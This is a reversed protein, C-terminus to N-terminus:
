IQTKEEKNNELLKDFIEALRKTINKRSYRQIAEENGCIIEEQNKWSQYKQVLYKKINERDDYEFNEGTQTESLINTLVGGETSFSLIPKRMRIYEFVKGTYFVKTAGGQAGFLVLIDSQMASKISESHTLYGNYKVINYRDLCDIKQRWKNELTGNFIWQIDDALIQGEEILENIYNLLELPSRDIYIMGNYCLTFKNNRDGKLHIDSFDDEDYGNTIEFIKDEPVGFETVYEEIMSKAVVLVADSKWVLKEELQKQLRQTINIDKRYKELYYKNTMWPDRYDQVWKIGYKNKIYYGLLYISYPNGSTYVMDIENLDLKQEIQKLCENVWIIQNDPILRIHTNQIVKLYENMWEKSQTVGCYLNYIEQQEKWSLVEPLFVKTNIRIVTIDDPVEALLTEDRVLKGDNEGVTLVIPEYGFDRLYKVFKLSRQVGGGGIPPFIYACFLVKKRDTKKLSLKEERIALDYNESFNCNIKEIKEKDFVCNEFLLTDSLQYLKYTDSNNDAAIGAYFFLQIKYIGMERLQKYILPYYVSAIIIEVNEMSALSVPNFIEKKCFKEGWKKKDNDAFGIVEYKDKLLRYAVNGTKSAGFIICKSKM